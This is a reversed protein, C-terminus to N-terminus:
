RTPVEEPARQALLKRLLPLITRPELYSPSPPRLHVTRPDPMRVSGSANAFAGQAHALDRVTFVIDPERIIISDIKWARALVRIEALELLTGVAPPFPGFADVLDQELQRLDATTRCAVLRRYIELRSRTSAMYQQPIHAAVNLELHVPPPTPDPENKLARVVKELLRCYFEYGVAAIHGSQEPGLINGAGRIELDRMAIRFGAGLESFEEIAKLRKAAKSTIPRDPSLLLYCYARHKSRGVRGRLQHLDALGFRDARNIFITNATPIDIGSEIITTCVLVDAKQRVFDTMVHELQHEKMQGHGVLVRAEPVTRRIRDALAEISQVFNHVFFVQGDRNMERLVANRILTESFPQVATAISRRDVPPTALACIDRLGIMSMHLTRPIPTATMTLVDVTARLRKLREKHEVGFRQEEDIIVLGLNAFGVDQSLLRHTGILVDIQGKRTQQVIRAQESPARFRSLCAIVFPYDTLRESFTEYHQEALVTTPVLVAVQRGYEVVKFAARMALETKGYGVDGCLLRDMPVPQTLDTKIETAASIQDATEEYAFAAEFEKQWATDAPYAVGPHTGREAQLRLLSEALDTVASEAKRTTNRWRTGGLKSLKPRHGAAGIYKQVLDVQSTPVHMVARDAFELTLFEETKTTDGKRLAQLGKFRAIGHIVHVVLDGPALDTWAELATAAQVKRIRRRPRVRQFVEHHGVVLTRASVWDFGRHLFGLPLTLAEPKGGAEELVMETLRQREGENDCVVVVTYDRCLECLEAVAERAQGEFRTVSRVDFAFADDASTLASGFRGLHIQDFDAVRRLVATVDYLQGPAAVRDQYIRGMEQIEAPGDLVILTDPPLYSLFDTDAGGADSAIRAPTPISVEDLGGVSRQTSPDFRRISDVRDESFEVRYPLSEGPAFIDVIDGRAACDGPSEVLELREFGRENLWALIAEPARCGGVALHLTNAALTSRTPVPQMLAPIPCVLVALAARSDDSLQICLHLREAEIEGAAAGEGPATEWAPFLDCKGGTFLELDNLTEDAEELHATIYLLRRGAQTCALAAVLPASSGWLGAVTVVGRGRRLRDILAQVEGDNTITPVMM